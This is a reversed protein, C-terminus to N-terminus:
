IRYRDIIMLIYIFTSIENSPAHVGAMHHKLIENLM